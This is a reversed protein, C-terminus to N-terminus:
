IICLITCNHYYYYYYHYIRYCTSTCTYYIYSVVFNNSYYLTVIIIIIYIRYTVLREMVHVYQRWNGLMVMKNEGGSILPIRTGDPYSISFTLDTWDDPVYTSSLKEPKPKMNNDHELTLGLKTVSELSKAAITDVTELHIRSLPLGVLPRWVMTSLDLGLSLHHRIAMGFFRGFYTMLELNSATPKYGNFVYKDQNNGVSSIRNATPVLLPLICHSQASDLAALEGQLEDAVQIVCM